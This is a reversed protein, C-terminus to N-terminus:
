IAALALLRRSQNADRTKKALGRLAVADFDEQLAIPAAMAFRRRKGHQILDGGIRLDEHTVCEPIQNGFRM